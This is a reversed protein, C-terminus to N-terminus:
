GAPLREADIHGKRYGAALREADVNRIDRIDPADQYLIPIFGKLVKSVLIKSGFDL